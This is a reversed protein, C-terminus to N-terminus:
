KPEAHLEKLRAKARDIYRKAEVREPNHIDENPHNDLLREINDVGVDLPTLSAPTKAARAYMEDAFEAYQKGRAMSALLDEPICHELTYAENLLMSDRYKKAAEAEFGARAPDKEPLLAAKLYAADALCLASNADIQQRSNRFQGQAAPYAITHRAFEKLAVDGIRVAQEYHFIAERAASSSPMATVPEAASPLEIKEREDAYNQSPPLELGYAKMEAYRGFGWENEMWNKGDIAPRNDVVLDSIQLHKQHLKDKLIQCRKYYANGIGMPPVGYPFPEFQHLWSLVPAQPDDWDTGPKGAVDTRLMGNTDLIADLRVRRGTESYVPTPVVATFKVSPDKMTERLADATIKDVVVSGNRKAAAVLTERRAAEVGAKTLGDLLPQLQSEPLTVRIDPFTERRVRDAYYQQEQSNGLKEFFLRGIQDIINIDLPHQEDIRYGYELADVITLYKSSKNAMQVSINYAKNWMQFIHVSDFEPQLLRILEIKSDFDELDKDQKQNESTTWLMMVLPGRLGGLLLALSFSDINSVKAEAGTNAVLVRHRAQTVNQLVLSAVFALLVVVITVARGATRHNGQSYAAADSM